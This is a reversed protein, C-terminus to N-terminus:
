TGPVLVGDIVINTCPLDIDAINDVGSVTNSFANVNIANNLFWFAYDGPEDSDVGTGGTITNDSITCGDVKIGFFIGHQFNGTVTNGTIAANTYISATNSALGDVGIGNYTGTTGVIYVVNNTLEPEYSNFVMIGTLVSNVTNHDIIGKTYQLNQISIGWNLADITNYKMTLSQGSNAYIGNNAEITNGNMEINSQGDLYIGYGESDINNNNLVGGSFGGTIPPNGFSGIVNIGYATGYALSNKAVLTNGSVLLNLPTSGTPRYVWIATVSSSVTNGVVQINQTSAAVNIWIGYYDTDIQNGSILSDSSTGSLIVGNPNPPRAYNPNTKATLHNGTITISPTNSAWIASVSSKITNINVTVQSAGAINIGTYDSTIQNNEVLGRNAGSQLNIGIVQTSFTGPPIPNPVPNPPPNLPPIASTSITNDTIKINPTNSATVACAPNPFGLPVVVAINNHKVEAGDIGTFSSSVFGQIKIGLYESKVNNDTVSLGPMPVAQNQIINIGTPQQTFMSSAKTTVINGKVAIDPTNSLDIGVISTYIWNYQVKINSPSNVQIGRFESNIVNFEVLGGTFAQNLRIGVPQGMPQPTAPPIAPSLTTKVSLVNARIIVSPTNQAQIAYVISNPNLNTILESPKATVVNYQVVAKLIGVNLLGNLTIGWGESNVVNSQVSVDSILTPTATSGQSVVIGTPISATAAPNAVASIFNGKVALNRCNTISIPTVATVKNLQVDVKSIGVGAAGSIAIGGRESNVINSRVSIGELSPIPGGITNLNLFNMGQPAITAYLPDPSTRATVQNNQVMINRTNTIFIGFTASIKNNLVKVDSIEPYDVESTDFSSIVGIGLYASDIINNEILGNSSSGAFRIGFAYPLSGTVIVPYFPVNKITFGSVTVGSAEVYIGANGRHIAPVNTDLPPFSVTALDLVARDGKLTLQKSVIVREQYTGAKVLITDGPSASDIAAQISKGPTVNITKSKASASELNLISILFLTIILVTILKRNVSM